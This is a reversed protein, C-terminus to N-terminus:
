RPTQVYVNVGEGGCHVTLPACGVGAFMKGTRTSAMLGLGSVATVRSTTKTLRNYAFIGAGLGDGVVDSQSGFYIISGKSNLLPVGEVTPILTAGLPSLHELEWLEEVEGADEAAYIKGDSSLQQPNTGLSFSVTLGETTHTERNRMFVFAGQHSPDLPLASQFIVIKGSRSIALPAGIGTPENLTQGSSSVSVREIKGTKLDKVYVQPEDVEGPTPVLNTANSGFAVYRGNGSLVVQAGQPVPGDNAPLGSPSTDVMRTEGTSMFHVYIHPGLEAPCWPSCEGGSNTAWPYLNNAWSEFAVESGDASIRPVSSTDPLAPFAPETQAGNSAVSVRTTTKSTRDRLFVDTAENTDGPVLGSASSAFAVYRGSESISPEGIVGGGAGGGVAVSILEPAESRADATGAYGLGVAVMALLVLACSRNSFRTM